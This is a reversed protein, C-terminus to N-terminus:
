KPVLMAKTLKHRADELQNTSRALVWGSYIREDRDNPGTCLGFLKSGFRDVYLQFAGSVTAGARTERWTGLIEDRSLFQGIAEFNCVGKKAVSRISLKDGPRAQVEVTESIWEGIQKDPQSLLGSATTPTEHSQYSSYWNGVLDPIDKTSDTIAEQLKRCAEQIGAESKASYTAASIGQLDSPIDIPDDRNYVMFSRKRSLAGMFLGLEFIVNDRPIRRSDGREISLDDPSLVLIAFEHKKTADELSELYSDGLGFVGHTWTTCIAIRSLSRKVEDAINIGETSSGIFVSPKLPGKSKHFKSTNM